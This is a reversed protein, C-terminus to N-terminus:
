APRASPIGPDEPRPTKRAGEGRAAARPHKTFRLMSVDYGLAQARNLLIERTAADPRPQRCLLWLFRGSPEGVISWGYDEARDLVWYNGFFPGFFSVRLKNNLGRASRVVYARGVASKPPGDLGGQRGSNVVKVKGSPKLSYHATVAEMDRQFGNEYRAIEHWLGLYRGLDVPKLPEPVEDNGVPGADPRRVSRWSAFTLGGALLLRAWLRM